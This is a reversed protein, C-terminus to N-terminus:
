RKRRRVGVILGAIFSCFGLLLPVAAAAALWIGLFLLPVLLVPKHLIMTYVRGTGIKNVGGLIAGAALIAAIIGSTLLTLLFRAFGYLFSGRAANICLIALGLSQLVLALIFPLRPQFIPLGAGAIGLALGVIQMGM